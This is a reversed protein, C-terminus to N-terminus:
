RKVGQGKKPTLPRCISRAHISKLRPSSGDDFYGSVKNNLAM